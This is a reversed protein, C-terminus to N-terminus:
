EAEAITSSRAGQHVFPKNFDPNLLEKLWRKRQEASTVVRVGIQSHNEHSLVEDPNWTLPEVNGPFLVQKPQPPPDVVKVPLAVGIETGEEVQQTIGSSNTLLVKASANDDTLEIFEDVLQLGMEDKLRDTAELLMPVQPFKSDGVLQAEVMVSHNLKPTGKCEAGITSQSITGSM